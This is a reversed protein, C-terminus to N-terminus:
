CNPLLLFLSMRPVFCLNYEVLPNEYNKYNPFDLRTSIHFLCIVDITLQTIGHPLMQLTWAYSFTPHYSTPFVISEMRLLYFQLIEVQPVVFVPVCFLSSIELKPFKPMPPVRHFNRLRGYRLIAFRESLSAFSIFANILKVRATLRGLYLYGGDGTICTIARRQTM